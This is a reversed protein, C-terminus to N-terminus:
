VFSRVGWLGGFFSFRFAFGLRETGRARTGVSGFLEDKGRSSGEPLSVSADGELRNERIKPRARYPERPIQSPSPPRHTQPPSPPTPLPSTNTFPHLFSITLLPLQQKCRTQQCRPQSLLDRQKPKRDHKEIKIVHKEINYQHLTM